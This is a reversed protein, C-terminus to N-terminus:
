KGASNRPAELRELVHMKYVRSGCLPCAGQPVDTLVIVRGAVTLRVEVFRQEYRGSCPCRGYHLPSLNTRGSVDMRAIM